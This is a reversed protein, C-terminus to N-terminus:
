AINHAEDFIIISNNYPIDFNERIKEDILYNYPMFIIDAGSARDKNGFYPCITFEQAYKHLEEIDIPDWPLTKIAEERNRYYQCPEIGKIANKCKNTM